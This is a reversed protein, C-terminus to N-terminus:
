TPVPSRWSDPSGPPVPCRRSYIEAHHGAGAAVRVHQRACPEAGGASLVEPQAAVFPADDRDQERVQHPEGRQGLGTVRLLHLVQDVPAELVEHLVDVGEPASDVLDDAVGDDGQEPGGRGVLVVGLPRDPRGQPHLGGQGLDGGAEVDLDLHPDPDVGALHQDPGQAGAAVVRGHAVHHVRGVAELGRRRGAGHEDAGGGVGGGAPHDRVVLQRRDVGLTTLLQHGGPQGDVGRQRRAVPGLPVTGREDAPLGLQADEAVAHLVGHAVVAGGHEEHETLGADALGAEGLLQGGDGGALVLREHELAAADRVALRVHPPRDGIREAVPAADAGAVRELVRDRQGVRGHAGGEAGRRHGALDIAHELAEEEEHAVLRLQAAELGGAGPLLGDPGDHREGLAVRHLLGDHDHEGVEVPGVVDDELEDVGEELAEAGAPEHHQGGRPAGDLLPPPRRVTTVVRHQEREVRERRVGRRLEQALQGADIEIVGQGSRQELAAAAVREEELLQDGEETLGAHDAAPRLGGVQGVRETAEDRRPEVPERRLLSAHELVARHEAAAPGVLRDLHHRLLVQADLVDARDQARELLLLHQDEGADALRLLPGEAGVDHSLDGVARERLAIPGLGM